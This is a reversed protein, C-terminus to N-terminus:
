HRSTTFLEATIGAQHKRIEGDHSLDDFIVLCGRLKKRKAETQRQLSEKQLKVIHRIAAEDFRDYLFPVSAPDNTKGQGLEQEAYEAISKWTPDLHVTSSFIFIHEIVGRYHDFVLSSILTGKGAASRGSVLMRTPVGPLAEFRSQKYTRTAHTLPKVTARETM